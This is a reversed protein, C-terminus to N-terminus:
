ENSEEEKEDENVPSTDEEEPKGRSVSVMSPRIVRDHLLYGRQFEEIVANEPVDDSEIHMVAEHLNPDFPEGQAQIVTVDRKKLLEGLQKHILQIGENLSDFDKSEKASEIGREISDVVLIIEKIVGEIAYRFFEAKDREARKKSNEYDAITRLMRDSREEYQAHTAKVSDLEEKMRNFEEASPPAEQESEEEVASDSADESAEPESSTVEDTSDAQVEAGCKETATEQIETETQVENAESM